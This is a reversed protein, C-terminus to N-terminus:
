LPNPEPEPISTDVWPKRIDLPRGFPIVALRRWCDTEAMDDLQPFGLHSDFFGNMVSIFCDECSISICQRCREKELKDANGCYHESYTM